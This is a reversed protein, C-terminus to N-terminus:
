QHRGRDQRAIRELRGLTRARAEEKKGHAPMFAIYLLVGVIVMSVAVISITSVVDSM